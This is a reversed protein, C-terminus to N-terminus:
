FFVLIIVTKTLVLTNANSFEIILNSYVCEKPITIVLMEFLFVQLMHVCRMAYM